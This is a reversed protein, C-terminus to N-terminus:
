STISGTSFYKRCQFFRRNCSAWVVRSMWEAVLLPSRLIRRTELPERCSVGKFVSSFFLHLSPAFSSRCPPQTLVNTTERESQRICWWRTGPALLLSFVPSARPGSVFLTALSAGPDSQVYFRAIHMRDSWYWWWKGKNRNSVRVYTHAYFTDQLPLLLLELPGVFHFVFVNVNLLM